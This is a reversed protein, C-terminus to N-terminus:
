RAIVGAMDAVISGIHHSLRQGPHQPALLAIDEIGVLPELLM